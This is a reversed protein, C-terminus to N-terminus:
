IRIQHYRSKLDIKSFYTAKRLCDMMGDMQPLPFRYRITIKNIARSDTCMRWEGGKKPALVIPVVCPILSERILAKDLLEQVQKKIDENDKPSMWYAVKNPLGAGPIFDIHHSISRKPPLKDTLDDVVIDSFKQLMEQIEISLYSVKTHLLVTKERRVVAYSVENDEIQKLFQKGGMLLVRMRSTEMIEEERIPVLTHKIGYKVFKYCNTKGDHVVKRDYQWPRLLRMEPGEEDSGDTTVIAEEENDDGVEPDRRRRAEFAELCTTLIRIEERLGEDAARQAGRGHRRRGVEM